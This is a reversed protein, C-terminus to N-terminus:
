LPCYVTRGDQSIFNGQRTSPPLHQRKAQGAQGSGPRLSGQRIAMREKRAQRYEASYFGLKIYRTIKRDTLLGRRLILTPNWAPRLYTSPNVWDRDPIYSSTM